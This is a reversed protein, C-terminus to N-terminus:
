PTRPLIHSPDSGRAVPNGNVDLYEDHRGTRNPNLRHYHDKGEFGPTGPRGKDFRIIEGTRPNEFMRHGLAAAGPHSTEHWGQALLDDPKAPLSLRGEQSM